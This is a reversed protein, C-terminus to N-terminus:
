LDSYPVVLDEIPARGVQNRMGEIRARCPQRTLRTDQGTVNRHDRGSAPRQCIEIGRAPQRLAM